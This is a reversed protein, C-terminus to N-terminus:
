SLLAPLHFASEHLSDIDDTVQSMLTLRLMSLGHLLSWCAYALEQWGAGNASRFEGSLLGDQFIRLLQAYATNQEVEALSCPALPRRNFMMVYVQPEQLAFHLNLYGNLYSCLM